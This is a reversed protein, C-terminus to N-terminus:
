SSSSANRRVNKGVGLLKELNRIEETHKGRGTKRQLDKLYDLETTWINYGCDLCFETHDQVNDHPCDIFSIKAMNIDPTFQVGEIQHSMKIHYVVMTM